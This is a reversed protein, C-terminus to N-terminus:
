NSFGKTQRRQTVKDAREKQMKELQVQLYAQEQPTYIGDLRTDNEKLAKRLFRMARKTSAM